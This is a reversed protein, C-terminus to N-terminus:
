ALRLLKKRRKSFDILKGKKPNVLKVRHVSGVFILERTGDEWMLDYTPFGCEMTVKRIFAKEWPDDMSWQLWVWQKKFNSRPIAM